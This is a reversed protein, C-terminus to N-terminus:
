RDCGYSFIDNDLGVEAKLVNRLLSSVFNHTKEKTWNEPPAIDSQSSEEVATYASEIENKYQSIVALRRPTGKPTHEFPKSPKAVLIM